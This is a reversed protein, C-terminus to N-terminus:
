SDAQVFFLCYHVVHVAGGAKYPVNSTRHTFSSSIPSVYPVVSHSVEKLIKVSFKLGIPIQDNSFVFNHAYGKGIAVKREHSLEVDTDCISHFTGVDGVSGWWGGAM